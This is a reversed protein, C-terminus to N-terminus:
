FNYAKSLRRGHGSLRRLWSDRPQSGRRGAVWALGRVQVPEDEEDSDTTPVQLPEVSVFHTSVFADPPPPPSEPRAAAAARM